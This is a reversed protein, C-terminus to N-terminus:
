VNNAIIDIIKTFDKIDKPNGRGIVATLKNSLINEVTDLLYREESVITYVIEM